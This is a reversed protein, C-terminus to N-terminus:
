CRFVTDDGLGGGHVHNMHDQDGGYSGDIVHKFEAALRERVRATRSPSGTTTTDELFGDLWAPFGVLRKEVAEVLRLHKQILRIRDLTLIGEDPPALEFFGQLWYCFETAKM